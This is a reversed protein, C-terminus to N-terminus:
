LTIMCEGCHGESLFDPSGQKLANHPFLISDHIKMNTFDIGTTGLRYTMPPKQHATARNRTKICEFESLPLTFCREHLQFMASSATDNFRNKTLSEM